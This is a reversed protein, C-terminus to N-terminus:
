GLAVALAVAALAALVVGAIWLARRRAAADVLQTLRTFRTELRATDDVVRADCHWAGSLEARAVLDTIAADTLVTKRRTIARTLGASPVVVVDTPRSKGFALPRPDVIAILPIVTVKGSAEPTLLKAARAAEFRADRIHNTRRSNVSLIDGEVHIRYGSHNRTMITFVGTPGIVLNDVDAATDAVPASHLLTFGPGLNKLGRTNRLEGVADRYWDRAGPTLPNAGFFRAIRSQPRADAQIRLCENMASYALGRVRLTPQASGRTDDRTLVNTM